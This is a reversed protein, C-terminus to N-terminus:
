TQSTSLNPSSPHLPTHHVVSLIPIIATAICDIADGRKPPAKYQWYYKM